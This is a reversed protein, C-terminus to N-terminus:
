IINYLIFHVKNGIAKDTNVLSDIARKSLSGCVSDGLAIVDNLGVGIVKRHIPSDYPIFGNRGERRGEMRGKASFDFSKDHTKNM